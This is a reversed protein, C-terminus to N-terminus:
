MKFSPWIQKQTPILIQISTGKGVQSIIKTVGNHLRIRAEINRLGMGNPRKETNFGKGNDNFIIKLLKNEYSFLIKIEDAKGHQIANSICEQSIRFLDLQLEQSIEPLPTNTVIKFKSVKKYRTAYEKIAKALGFEELMAPMLNFCITRVEQIADSLIKNSVELSPKIKKSLTTSLLSSIQFKAAALQQILSDHFDKSLRQRENEQVKIISRMLMNQAQLENSIDNITLILFEKGSANKFKTKQVRVPIHKGNKITLINYNHPLSNHTASIIENNVSNRKYFHNINKGIILKKSLELKRVGAENVDQIIGKKNLIFVIESVSNFITNFYIRSITADNLEEGLVNIGNSIADLEDKKGSIKIQRNFHGKSYEALRSNIERLRKDMATLYQYQYIAPAM